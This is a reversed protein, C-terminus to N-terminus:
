NCVRLLGVVPCCHPWTIIKWQPDGYWAVHYDGYLLNYGDRHHFKGGGRDMPKGYRGERSAKDFTDSALTRAGLLRVTRFDPGGGATKVVPRTGGLSWTRNYYGSGSYSGNASGRYNYQCLASKTVYDNREPSDGYSYGRSEVDTWNGYFLADRGKGGLQGFDGLQALDRSAHGYSRDLIPMQKGSPCFFASVDGVYGCFVLYGMNIPAANLKGAEWTETNHKTGQALGRWYQWPNKWVDWGTVGKVGAASNQAVPLTRIETSNKADALLGANQEVAMNTVISTDQWGQGPWSAFYGAYDGTYSAWGKGAQSLNNSCTSRRAKERAAALAPLLMAALIAIIAVVVLLEILTFFSLLKKWPLKRM